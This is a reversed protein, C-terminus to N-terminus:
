VHYSFELIGKEIVVDKVTEDYRGYEYVEYTISKDTESKGYDYTAVDYLTAIGFYFKQVLDRLKKPNKRNKLLLTGFAFSLDKDPAELFVYEKQEM